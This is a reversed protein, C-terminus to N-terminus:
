AGGFRSPPLGMNMLQDAMRAASPSPVAAGEEAISQERLSTFFAEKHDDATVNRGGM